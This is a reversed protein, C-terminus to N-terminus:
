LKSVPLRGATLGHLDITKPTGASAGDFTRLDVHGDSWALYLQGSLMFAGRINASALGLGTVAAPAGAVTGDFSRRMPTAGDGVRDRGGPDPQRRRHLGGLDPAPRPRGRREGM